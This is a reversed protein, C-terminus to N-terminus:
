DYRIFLTKMLHTASFYEYLLNSNHELVRQWGKTIM